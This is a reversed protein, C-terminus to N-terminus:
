RSRSMALTRLRSMAMGGQWRRLGRDLGLCRWRERDTGLNKCIYPGQNKDTQAKEISSDTQYAVAPVFLM